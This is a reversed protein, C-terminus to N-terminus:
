AEKFDINPFMGMLDSVVRKDNRCEECLCDQRTIWWYKNADEVVLPASCYCCGPSMGGVRKLMENWGNKTFKEGNYGPYLTTFDDDDGFSIEDDLAKAINSAAVASIIKKINQSSIRFLPDKTDRRARVRATTQFTTTKGVETLLKYYSKLDNPIVLISHKGDLTEGIFNKINNENVLRFKIGRTEKGLKETGSTWTTNIQTREAHRVGVVVGGQKFHNGTPKALTGTTSTSNGGSTKGVTGAMTTGSWVKKELERDEVMPCSIATPKFTYLRDEKLQFYTEPKHDLKIGNRNAAVTIMWPESAWFLVDHKENYTIWLPREKNRILNLTQDDDNWYVVAAAGWFSKWTEDIGMEAISSILAHSDVKAKDANHLDRYSWLTGNHVGTIHKHEFPHANEKTIDGKTAARNHGIIARPCGRIVGRSDLIDKHEGSEWLNQPIGVEKIIRLPSRLATPVIALGTSDFGRVQDFILMDRVMKNTISTLNGSAGIIGCM